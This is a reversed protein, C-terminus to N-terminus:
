SPEGGLADVAARCKAAIADLVVAHAAMEKQETRRRAHKARKARERADDASEEAEDAMKSALHALWQDDTFPEGRGRGKCADCIRSDIWCEGNCATCFHHPRCREFTSRKLSGTSVAAYFMSSMGGHWQEAVSLEEQTFEIRDM